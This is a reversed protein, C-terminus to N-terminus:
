PSGKDENPEAKVVDISAVIEIMLRNVYGEDPPPPVSTAPPPIAAAGARNLRQAREPIEPQAV